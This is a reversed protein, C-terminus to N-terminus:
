QGAWRGDRRKGSAIRGIIARESVSYVLCVYRVKLGLLTRREASVALHKGSPSLEAAEVRCRGGLRKKLLAEVREANEGADSTRRAGDLMEILPRLSTVPGDTAYGFHISIGTLECVRMDDPHYHRDSWVCRKAEQPTCHNGAASVVAVEELVKVGSISSAVLYQKLARKGTISCRDLETPLVRRQSVECTELLGPMVYRGTVECREAENALLSQSTIACSVFESKHGVTDSVVSRVSQDARFRKGSVESTVLEEALADIQTFACRGFWEPEARRGTVASTKLLARTVLKHSVSSEELEDTVVRKGTVSCLATHEPLAYRDSIESKVLLHRLVHTGSVVCRALCSEPVIKRTLECFMMAPSNLVANHAPDLEVTCSYDDSGDIAFRLSCTLDRHVEGQLASVTMQLRPTFDDELKKERRLDGGAAKVEERMRETYFRCFEAVAPDHSAKEAIIDPELGLDRVNTVTESVSELGGGGPFSVEAAIPVTVLREYSDHAVTARVHVLAGGALHRKVTSIDLDHLEGGFGRMWEEALARAQWVPEQDIDRIEHLANRTVRDVLREFAPTGPAYAVAGKPAKETTESLCILSRRGEVDCRYLDDSQPELKAGLAELASLAFDKADVTRESAPLHPSRPGTYVARDGGGLLENITEQEEALVVKARAISDEAQRIAAEVNKGELSALVLRRVEEEFGQSGTDDGNGMGSAELLSEIDGIAHAAMQLKEMLRGVVYEEFTGKLIVSYIFVKAHQSALRQVRGIRQEVVMPNWPLDYNVLVNAAQLNVGESGAETSVIVNLEPPDQKFKAITTKNRQGSEGNIIGVTIGESELFEKITTQTERRQTFIVMRWAGPNQERLQKVLVALGTLKASMPMARVTARVQAAVDAPFTGKQAMNDLQAALADPSSTLAFLISIQSLRNLSRIPRALLRILDQEYTTPPVAHLSIVREPFHLDADERRVRSMYGYVISRFEEQAEPRLKRAETARDGIFRRAFMGDSGFPNQHGRATALLDVLSYLDWLRNQVPTATLMLVYKFMRSALVERFKLAVQPASPTGYLNRLKHAEDLVLMEFRDRPIRDIYLRASHYTTIVAGIDEDPDAALLERGSVVVSPINFKTELEEKWQPGLLKPAVILIKQIRRRSILESAILGASITKGLGVDDALLTVPLRRCFTILNSVQHYYPEIQDQWRLQSKLDGRDEIIIPDVLGWELGARYLKFSEASPARLLERAQISTPYRSGM